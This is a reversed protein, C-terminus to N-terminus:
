DPQSASNGEGAAETATSTDPLRETPSVAAVRLATLLEDEDDLCRLDLWLRNDAIRGLIPKPQAHWHAALAELSRGRGDHATFTLAQSPLTNMPLAGSGIQSLCPAGDIHFSAGYLKRCEPLLREVTQAIEAQARSLHRLTPLTQPLRDHPQSYRRYLRLTAELAALTMKDCRLARKLPHKQLRAIADARGVIIGAQPGGLLKDGSFSVLDVGDALIQQPMTEVPLGYASMDILAGSGLDSVVPIGTDRGLAALEAEKVASTFGEIRYNSTHVKVLLATRETIARRYDDLHTRNTTGVEVLTCGAQRMVDPIRFAGGIEILEGRSAIAERGDALAAFMLLVAAANNNVVCCAEAGTIERLLDVVANDRHGRQAEDLNYELTVPERMVRAVAEIADEALQARGLNTHLVIGTLNFVPKLKSASREALAHQLAAPWDNTWKPLVRHAAIHARAEALLARAADTAPRQGYQAVLPAVAAEHLLRDVSPLQPYLADPM